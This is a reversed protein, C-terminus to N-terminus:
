RYSLRLWLIMNHKKLELESETEPLCCPRVAELLTDYIDAAVSGTVSLTALQADAAEAIVSLYHQTNGKIENVLGGAGPMHQLFQLCCVLLSRCNDPCFSCPHQLSIYTPATSHPWAGCCPLLELPHYCPDSCRCLNWGVVVVVVLLLAIVALM